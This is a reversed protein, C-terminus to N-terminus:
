AAKERCSINYCSDDANNCVFDLTITHIIKEYIMEKLDISVMFALPCPPLYFLFYYCAYLLVTKMHSHQPVDARNHLHLGPTVSQFRHHLELKVGAFQSWLTARTVSLPRSGDHLRPLCLPTKSTTTLHHGWSLSTSQWSACTQTCPDTDQSMKHHSWSLIQWPAAPICLFCSEPILLPLKKPKEVDHFSLPVWKHQLLVRKKGSWARRGMGLVSHLM